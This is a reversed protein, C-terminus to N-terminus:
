GGRRLPLTCCRFSGGTKPAQDFDLEFVELGTERLLTNVRATRSRSIIARPSLSLVNVALEKQEESTIEILEFQDTISRPIEVIGGPYFLAQRNGAPLFTCDLHLIEQGSQPPRLPMTIVEYQPFKKVLFDIAEYSTRESIGVYIVGNHIVVDGGEIIVREPVHTVPSDLQRLIREMGRWETKRSRKAMNSLVLTDGIVFGIDRPTLQDPVGEVASPQYVTVGCKELLKRFEAFEGILKEPDPHDETFYYRQQTENIIEPDSQHFTDPLGIVVHTLKATESDVWTTLRDM